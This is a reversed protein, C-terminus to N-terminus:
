LRALKPHGNSFSSLGNKNGGKASPAATTATAAPAVCLATTVCFPRSKTHPMPFPMPPCSSCLRDTTMSGNWTSNGLRIPRQCFPTDVSCRSANTMDVCVRRPAFQTCSALSTTRCIHVSHVQLGSPGPGCSSPTFRKIPAPSRTHHAATSVHTETCKKIYLGVSSDRRREDETWDSSYSCGRPRTAARREARWPHLM